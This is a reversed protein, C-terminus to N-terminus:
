SGAAARRRMEDFFRAWDGGVSEFVARFEDGRGYRRMQLLVANNV